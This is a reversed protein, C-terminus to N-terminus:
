IRSRGAGGGVGGGAEGGGAGGGAEDDVVGASEVPREDLLSEIDDRMSLPPARPSYRKRPVGRRDVLFKTFNWKITSGLSDSLAARLFTYVPHTGSGNM